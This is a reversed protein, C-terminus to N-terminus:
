LKRAEFIHPHVPSPHFSGEAGRLVICDIGLLQSGSRKKVPIIFTRCTKHVHLVRVFRVTGYVTSILRVKFLMRCYRYVRYFFILVM